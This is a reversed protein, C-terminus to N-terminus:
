RGLFHCRSAAHARSIIAERVRDTVVGRNTEEVQDMIVLADVKPLIADISQIILQETAASTETRNKTDYRDHEGALSADRMNRPKLYTPTMRDAVAHLHQTGCGLDGLRRRLDFGEGDEGTIGIAHLAGAGLSALNCMVTGACGPSTRIRTVQHAPRGTEVSREEILPDCDLYKDLFFDGVM